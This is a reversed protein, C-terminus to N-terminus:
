LLFKPPEKFEPEDEDQVYEWVDGEQVPYFFPEVELKEENLFSLLKALSASM